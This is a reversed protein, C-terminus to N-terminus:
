KQYTAKCHQCYLLIMVFSSGSWDLITLIIVSVLIIHNTFLLSGLSSCDFDFDVVYDLDSELM